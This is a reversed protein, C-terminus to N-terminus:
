KKPVGPATWTEADAFGVTWVTVAITKTGATLFPADIQFVSSSGKAVLIPTADGPLNGSTQGPGWQQM